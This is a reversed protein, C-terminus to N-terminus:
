LPRLLEGVEGDVPNARIERWGGEQVIKGRALVTVGPM